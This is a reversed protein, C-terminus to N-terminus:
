EKKQRGLWVQPPWLRFFHFHFGWFAHLSYRALGRQPSFDFGGLPPDMVMVSVSQKTFYEKRSEPEGHLWAARQKGGSRNVPTAATPMRTRRNSKRRTTTTTTAAAAPSWPVSEVESLFPLSELAEEEAADEAATATHTHSTSYKMTFERSKWSVVGEGLMTLSNMNKYSFLYKLTKFLWWRLYYCICPILM